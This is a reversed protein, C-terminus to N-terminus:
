KSAKKNKSTTNKTTNGKKTEKADKKRWVPKEPNKFWDEIEEHFRDIDKLIDELEDKKKRPM